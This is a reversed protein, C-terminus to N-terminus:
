DKGLIRNVKELIPDTSLKYGMDKSPIELVSPLLQDAYRNMVERISEAIHQNLFLVGIDKRRMLREFADIINELPTTPKIVMINSHESNTEVGHEAIGILLFSSVTDEDGILGILNRQGKGRFASM